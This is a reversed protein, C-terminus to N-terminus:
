RVNSFRRVAANSKVSNRRKKAFVCVRKCSNQTVNSNETSIQNWFNCVGKYETQGGQHRGSAVPRPTVWVFQENMRSAWWSEDRLPVYFRIPGM